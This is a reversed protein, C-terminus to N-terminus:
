LEVGVYPKHTMTPNHNKISVLSGPKFFYFCWSNFTKVMGSTQFHGFFPTM